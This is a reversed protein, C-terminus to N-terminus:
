WLNHDLLMLLFALDLNPLLVICYLVLLLCFRVKDAVERFLTFHFNAPVISSVQPVDSIGERGVTGSFSFSKWVQEIGQGQMATNSLAPCSAQTKLGPIDGSEM